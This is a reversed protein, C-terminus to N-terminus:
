FASLRWENLYQNLFFGLTEIRRLDAWAPSNHPDFTCVEPVFGLTPFALSLVDKIGLLRLLLENYAEIKLEATSYGNGFTIHLWLFLNDLPRVM